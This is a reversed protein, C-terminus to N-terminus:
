ATNFYFDYYVHNQTSDAICPLGGRGVNRESSPGERSVNSKGYMPLVVVKYVVKYKLIIQLSYIYIYIYIIIYIYISM